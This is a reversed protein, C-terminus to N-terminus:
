TYADMSIVILYALGVSCNSCQRPRAATSGRPMPAADPLQKRGGGSPPALEGGVEADM